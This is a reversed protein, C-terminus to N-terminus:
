EVAMLINHREEKDIETFRSRSWKKCDQCQFRKYRQTQTNYFGRQHVHKSGCNPCRVGGAVYLAHNPHSVIWGTIRRYLKETLKTDDINYKRMTEWAKKDGQMVKVWLPFGEHELKKGLGLERLLWDLKNSPFKFQKKITEILDIHKFPSPPGLGAKLFERNLLPVDHRKGNFTVVADAEDLLAHILHIAHPEEMKAFIIDKKDLWKAAFCLVRGADLIQDIGMNQNFLGWNGTLLYSNELDLVLTKISM